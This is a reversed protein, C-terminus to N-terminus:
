ADQEASEQDRRPSNSQERKEPSSEGRAVRVQGLEDEKLVGKGLLEEVFQRHQQEHEIPLADSESEYDIWVDKKGTELNYVLRITIEPM